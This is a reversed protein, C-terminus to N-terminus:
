GRGPLFLRFQGSCYEGQFVPVDELAPTKTRGGFSAAFDDEIGGEGAILFDEGVGGIGALDDDEGIGLDAIVSGAGGVVLRLTRVNFTEHDALKGGMALLQRLSAAASVKRARAPTGMTLSRSVRARTRWRRVRPTMRPTREERSDSPWFSTSFARLMGVM